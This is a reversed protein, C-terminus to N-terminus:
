SMFIHLFVVKEYIKRICLFNKIIIINKLHGDTKIIENTTTLQGNVWKHTFVTLQWGAIDTENWMESKITKSQKDPTMNAFERAEKHLELKKTKPDIIILHGVSLSRGSSVATQIYLDTQGDFNYDDFIVDFQIPFADLESIRDILDWTNNQITYLKVTYTADTPCTVVLANKETESIIYGSKFFLFSEYLEFGDMNGNLFEVSESILAKHFLATLTDILFVEASKIQPITDQMAINERSQRPQNCSLITLGVLWLIIRTVVNPAFNGSTGNLNGNNIIKSNVPKEKEM